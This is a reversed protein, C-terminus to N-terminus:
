VPPSGLLAMFTCLDCMRGSRQQITSKASLYAANQNNPLELLTWYIDHNVATKLLKRHPKPILSSCIYQFIKRAFVKRYVSIRGMGNNGLTCHRKAKMSFIAPTILQLYTM